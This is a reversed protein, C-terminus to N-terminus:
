GTESHSIGDVLADGLQSLARDTLEPYMPVFVIRRLLDRAIRPELELRDGPPSVVRLSGTESETSDFGADRLNSRMEAVEGMPVPFVWHNHHPAASGPCTFQDLIRARLLTGLETRRSLRQQSYKELRRQLWNRAELDDIHMFQAGIRDCYTTELRDIIGGLTQLNSGPILSTSFSGQMDDDTFGYFEPQLEVPRDRVTGLPDVKAIIHGRVRYNRILQDVREQVRALRLDEGQPRGDAGSPPNFMSAPRMTPRLAPRGAVDDQAAWDEFLERWQSPVQSPDEKYRVYLQELYDVSLANRPIEM